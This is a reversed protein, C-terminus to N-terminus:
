IYEKIFNEHRSIQTFTTLWNVNCLHDDDPATSVIGRLYYRITGKDSDPFALGGGSDGKCLSTGNEYGACIKDGTIYARFDPPAKSQCESISIYPLHVVKLFPSELEDAGTLGWGAVKGLSQEKLQRKEFLVGFDVCVPRVLNSYIITTELLLIAIDDQYNTAGGLFHPPMKIDAVHSKQVRKDEELLWPRYLKGLAVAYNSAPQAKVITNNWFCHAASIVVKASVLSGGCIQRYPTSTTRYIGAHWPLEAKEAAAGGSILGDGIAVVGCEPLCRATYDWSGAICRMYPLNGNYYYDPTRCDVRIVTGAPEYEGCPRFGESDGTLLCRYTVSQDKNLRCFQVCDGVEPSWVGELCLRETTDGIISYGPYCTVNYTITPFAQGPVATPKGVVTYSGHDPYPPLVCAGGPAPTPKVPLIRNCLEDSEDSGDACEQKGNCDAGSDVCAGYACQFLHASCINGACARVTEDSGDGCDRVGDCLLYAAIQQGNDCRFKGASVASENRCRPLLEDSNDVCEQLGNCPATGDVCAGYTCRFWNSQCISNRCLPFTEDSGDPCDRIGDCKGYFAICTGDRCQWQNKSCGAQRKWRRFVERKDRTSFAQTKNNCRTSAEDDDACDKVGSCLASRDVCAGYYCRYANPPCQNGSCLEVTEDSADPCDRIGDCKGKINICLGNKCQWENKGCPSQNDSWLSVSNSELTSENVSDCKSEDSGDQCDDTGDCTSTVNICRGDSCQFESYSSSCSSEAVNVTLCSAASIACFILVFYLNLM